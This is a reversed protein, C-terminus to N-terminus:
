FQPDARRSPGDLHPSAHGNSLRENREYVKDHGNVLGQVM